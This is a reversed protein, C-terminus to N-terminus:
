LLNLPINFLYLIIIISGITIRYWGFAKFGYKNLINIFFKIALVGVIFAIVIGFLLQLIENYTLSVTNSFDFLKKSTAAFMTPVALFFSFEAANKRTLKQTLGGIISAGSRSVGPFLAICQFVGIKFAKFNSIDDENDLENNAFWKDVFLLIVGGLLLFIAIILVSELAKEIYDKLLLAVIAVPIFAILLKIYFDISRFFRKYYLAVVSLIAGLQICVIYLKVFETLNVNIIASAIVMHGTSSIPLFETLGEIIAIILAQYYEM